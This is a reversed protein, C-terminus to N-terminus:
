AGGITTYIHRKDHPSVDWLVVPTIATGLAKMKRSTPTGSTRLLGRMSNYAHKAPQMRTEVRNSDNFRAFESGSIRVHDVGKPFQKTWKAGVANYICCNNADDEPINFHTKALLQKALDWMEEMMKTNTAILINDDAWTLRAFRGPECCQPESDTGSPQGLVHMGFLRRQRQEWSSPHMPRAAKRAVMGSM